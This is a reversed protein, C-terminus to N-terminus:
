LQSTQTTNQPDDDAHNSETSKVDTNDPDASAPPLRNSAQDIQYDLGDIINVKFKRGGETLKAWVKGGVQWSSAISPHDFLDTLLTRNNMTSDELVVYGKGKLEKKVRLIQEVHDRRFFRTLIAQKKLKVPGIRHACDLDALQIHNMNLKDM